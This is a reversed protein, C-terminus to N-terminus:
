PRSIGHLCACRAVSPMGYIFYQTRQRQASPWLASLIVCPRKMFALNTRCGCAPTFEGSRCDIQACIYPKYASHPGQQLLHSTQLSYCQTDSHPGRSAAYSPGKNNNSTTLCYSIIHYSIIHYSIIHHSTVGSIHRAIAQLVTSKARCSM